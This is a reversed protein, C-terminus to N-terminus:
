FSTASFDICVGIPFPLSAHHLHVSIHQRTLACSYMDNHWQTREIGYEGCCDRAPLVTDLGKSVMGM